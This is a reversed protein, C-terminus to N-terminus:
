VTRRKDALTQTLVVQEVTQTGQIKSLPSAGFRVAPNNPFVMHAEFGLNLKKDSYDFSPSDSANLIEVKFTAQLKKAPTRGANQLLLDILIPKGVEIHQNEQRIYIWARQDKQMVDLQGNLIFFQYIAAGCSLLHFYSDM